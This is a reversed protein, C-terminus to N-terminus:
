KFVALLLYEYKKNKGAVGVHHISLYTLHSSSSVMIWSGRRMRIVGRTTDEGYYGDTHMLLYLIAPSIKM